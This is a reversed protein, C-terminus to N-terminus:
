RPELHLRDARVLNHVNVRPPLDGGHKGEWDISAIERDIATVKGKAFPIPGTFMGTSRLFGRAYMVRNGVAIM